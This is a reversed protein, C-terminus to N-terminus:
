GLSHLVSFYNYDDDGTSTGTIGIPLLANGISVENLSDVVKLAMEKMRKDELVPVTCRMWCEVDIMHQQLQLRVQYANKHSVLALVTAASRRIQASAYSLENNSCNDILVFLDILIDSSIIDAHYSPLEAYSAIVLIVLERVSMEEDHFLQQLTKMVLHRFVPSEIHSSHKRSLDYLMRLGQIRSELLASTETMEFISNISEMFDSETPQWQNVVAASDKSMENDRQVAVPTNPSPFAFPIPLATTSLRRRKQVPEGTLSSQFKQFFDQFSSNPFGSSNTKVVCVTFESSRTNFYLRVEIEISGSGDLYKGMWLNKFTVFSFDYDTSNFLYSEIEKTINNIKRQSIIFHTSPLGYPPEGYDNRKNTISSKMTKTNSNVKMWMSVDDNSDFKIDNHNDNEYATTMRNPIVSTFSDVAKYKSDLNEDGYSVSFLEIDEDESIYKEDCFRDLCNM